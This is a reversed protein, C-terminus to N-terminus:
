AEHSAKAGQAASGASAAPAAMQAMLRWAMWGLALVAAIISAWLAWTKIAMPPRKASEGSIRRPPGAFAQTIPPSEGPKAAGLAIAEEGKYGPIISQIAFSAPGASASGYALQFPPEGRAVFVLRHALWGVELQPTGAGLGGGRQDVRVLWHREATLPISLTPSVIEAGDQNFRYVTARAVSRWPDANRARALVEIVAVTNAQPLHLRIRDIPLPGGVDFEYEGAKDKLLQGPTARTQREAEIPGEAIEATVASLEIAPRKGQRTAEWSLRWYKAKRAPFEVRELRLVQGGAELRVIPANQAVPVWSRLDESAEVRIASSFTPPAGDVTLRMASIPKDLASADLVYGLLAPAQTSGRPTAEFRMQEGQREFKIAVGEVGVTPDGRLPFPTLTQLTPEAKAPQARPRLAHPVVENAGNFVRVDGLDARVVGEYVALPLELEYLAQRGDIQLPLGSAFDRPHEAAGANGMGAAVGLAIAV